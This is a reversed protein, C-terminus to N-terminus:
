IKALDEVKEIIKDTLGKGDDVECEEKKCFAAKKVCEMIYTSLGIDKLATIAKLRRHTFKSMNINVKIFRNEDSM